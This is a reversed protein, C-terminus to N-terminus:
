RGPGKGSDAEALSQKLMAVVRNVDKETMHMGLPLAVSQDSIRTAQPYAGPLFGYKNRYYTMRPVPQPYYISTGIGSANLKTVVDNRRGAYEGEFVASVCYHSSRSEPADTDILRVQPLDGLLTRYQNFLSARQTLVDPMRRLQSRGLAAQIESMRYNLGLSPVDYMGPVTRESHTRDVGFARLRAVASAVAEHRTVFMGGEGTTMHKVPYFSFCGADGFLAVHRGQHRAGLAIACDEIIRLGHRQALDVIPPMDCAIGAFHVVSIAKTRPTLALSIASATLNGTRSDCDVFVPTAGVWEVAHVTAAHTQAPVIVEDGPGIGFHLYALHLAAMCSSVSVCHGGGLFETFEQEFSKCQPGHTLIHGNLVELVAQRDGDTIWPRAFPIPVSDSM